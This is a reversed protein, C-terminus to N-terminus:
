VRLRGCKILPLLIKKNLVFIETLRVVRVTRVLVIRALYRFNAFVQM